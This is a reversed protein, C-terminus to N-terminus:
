GYCPYNDFCRFKMGSRKEFWANIWFFFTLNTLVLANEYVTTIRFCLFIKQHTYYRPFLDTKYILFVLILNKIKRYFIFFVHVVAKVDNVSYLYASIKQIFEWKSFLKIAIKSIWIFGKFIVKYAVRQERKKM